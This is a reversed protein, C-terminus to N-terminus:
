TELVPSLLALAQRGAARRELERAHRDAARAGLWPTWYARLTAVVLATPVSEAPAAPCFLLDLNTVPGGGPGGVPQEYRVDVRRFGLREFARLRNWPDSGVARERALDDPSLRTPNVVDIFVGPLTHGAARNLVEFRAVHLARAVGQRRAERAVGLFSSFGSGADALYHFVTGGLVTADEDREGVLLFNRRAGDRQALMSGFYEPPILAGPEYYVARQVRGFAAIAPDHPDTVERIRM